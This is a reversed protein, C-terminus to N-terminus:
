APFTDIVSTTVCNMFRIDDDDDDVLPMADLAGAASMTTMLACVLLFLMFSLLFFLDILFNYLNMANSLLKVHM